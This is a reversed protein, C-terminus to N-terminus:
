LGLLALLERPERVAERWAQQWRRPQMTLPAAPIM